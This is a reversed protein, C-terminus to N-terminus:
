LRQRAAAVARLQEVPGEIIRHPAPGSIHVPYTAHENQSQYRRVRPRVTCAGMMDFKRGAVRRTSPPRARPADAAAPPPNPGQARARGRRRQPGRPAGRERARAVSSM